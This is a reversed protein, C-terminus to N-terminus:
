KLDMLYLTQNLDALLEDRISLLDTDKFSSSMSNLFDRFQNFLDIIGIDTLYTENLKINNVIPKVKYRGIFVEVFKDINNTLKDLYQDTAKHRAYSTTNWHYLKVTLQITFFVKVIKNINEKEM